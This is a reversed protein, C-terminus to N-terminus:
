DTLTITPYSFQNISNDMFETTMTEVELEIIFGTKAKKNSVVTGLFINQCNKKHSTVTVSVGKKLKIKELYNFKTKM